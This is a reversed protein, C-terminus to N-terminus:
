ALKSGSDAIQYAIQPGALTCHVAVHVGRALHVALDCVIWEYRNESVQVVREGPQVGLRRLVAAMCRVDRALDNWSRPKFDEGQRVCIATRAGDLEVRRCFISVLTECSKDM